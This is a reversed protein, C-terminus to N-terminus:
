RKTKLEAKLQQNEARLQQNQVLSVIASIATAAYTVYAVYRLPVIQQNLALNICTVVIAAILLWLSKSTLYSKSKM